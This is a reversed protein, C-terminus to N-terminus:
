DQPALRLKIRAVLHDGAEFRADCSLPDSEPDVRVSVRAEEAPGLPARFKASDVRLIGLPRGASRQALARAAEVLYVGPVTPHGPFHGEFIALGPDFSLRARASTADTEIGSLAAEVDGIM